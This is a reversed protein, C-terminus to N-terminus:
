KKGSSKSLSRELVVLRTDFEPDEVLDSDRALDLMADSIETLRDRAPTADDLLAKTSFILSSFRSITDLIAREKRAENEKQKVYKAIWEVVLATNTKYEDKSCVQFRDYLEKPVLVTMRKIEREEM